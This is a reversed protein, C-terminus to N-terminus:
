SSYSEGKFNFDLYAESGFKRVGYLSLTGLWNKGSGSNRLDTKGHTYTAGVGLIWSGGEEKNAVHDFGLQIGYYKHKFYYKSKDLSNKGSLLRVWGGELDARDRIEGMRQYLTENELRWLYYDTITLSDITDVTSSSGPDKPDEKPPEKVEVTEEFIKEGIEGEWAYIAKANDTTVSLEVPFGNEDVFQGAENVSFEKFKGDANVYGLKGNEQKLTLPTGAAPAEVKPEEPEPLTTSETGPGSPEQGTGPTTGPKELEPPTYELYVASYTTQATTELPLTVKRHSDTYSTFFGKEDTLQGDETPVIRLTTTELLDRINNQNGVIEPDDYYYEEEYGGNIKGENIYVKGSVYKYKEYVGNEDEWKELDIRERINDIGQDVFLNNVASRMVQYAFHEDPVEDASIPIVVDLHSNNGGLTKEVNRMLVGGSVIGYGTGVFNWILKGDEDPVASDNAKANDFSAKDFTPIINGLGRFIGLDNVQSNRGLEIDYSSTISDRDDGLVLQTTLKGITADLAGQKVLLNVGEELILRKRQQTDPLLHLTSNDTFNTERSNSVVIDGKKINFNGKLETTTTASVPPTDDMRPNVFISYAVGNASTNVASIFVSDREEPKSEITQVGGYNYIGYSEPVRSASVVIEKTLGVYQTGIDREGRGAELTNRFAGSDSWNFIGVVPLTVSLYDGDSTWEGGSVYAVKDSVFISGVSNIIQPGHDSTVTTTGGAIGFNTAYIKGIKSVYQMAGYIDQVGATFPQSESGIQNIPLYIHQSADRASGGQEINIIGVGRGTSSQAGTLTSNILIRDISGGPDKESNGILQKGSTNSIVGLNPGSIGYGFGLFGPRAVKNALVEATLTSFTGTVKQTSGVGNVEFIRGTSATISVDGTFSITQSHKSGSKFVSGGKSVIQFSNLLESNFITQDVLANFVASERNFREGLSIKSTIDGVIEYSGQTSQVTGLDGSIDASLSIDGSTSLLLSLGLPLVKLKTRRIRNPLIPNVVRSSRARFNHIDSETLFGLMANLAVYGKKLSPHSSM